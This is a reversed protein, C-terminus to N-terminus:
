NAANPSKKDSRNSMYSHCFKPLQPNAEQGIPEAIFHCGRSIEESILKCPNAVNCPPHTAPSVELCRAVLVRANKEGIKNKCSKEASFSLSGCTLTLTIVLTKHATTIMGEGLNM